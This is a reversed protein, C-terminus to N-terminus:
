LILFTLKLLISSGFFYLFLDYLFIALISALIKMYEKKYSISLSTEEEKYFFKHKIIFYVNKLIIFLCCLFFLKIVINYIIGYVFGSVQFVRFFLFISYSICTFEWIIYLFFFVIGIVAFSSGILFILTFIHSFIFNVHNEQLHTDLTEISSILNTSDIKLYFLFGLLVGLFLLFLLIRLQKQNIKLSTGFLKM